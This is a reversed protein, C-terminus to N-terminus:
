APRAGGADEDASSGGLRHTAGHVFWIAIGLMTWAVAKGALEIFEQLMCMTLFSVVAGIAAVAMPSRRHGEWALRRILLFVTGFMGVIFLLGAPGQEQILKLYANDTYTQRRDVESARGVTGIGTGAPNSAITDLSREWTRWRLELSEDALPDSIGRARAETIDSKGGAAIAAVYGGAGVLLVVAVALAKTRRPVTPGAVLVVALVATGVALGLIAVRAYSQVIGILALLATAWALVRVRADLFGIVLSFVAVPVLYSALAVATSFTGADRVVNEEFRAHISRDVLYELEWGTPQVFARFTAYASLLAFAVLLARTLGVASPHVAYMVVGAVVLPVYGQTLRLGEIANVLDPSFLVAQVLSVALWAGVLSWSVREARSADRWVALLPARGAVALLWAVAALLIADIFIAGFGTASPVDEANLRAKFIGEAGVLLLAGVVGLAPARLAISTLLAVAAVGLAMVPWVMVSAAGAAALLALGAVAGPSQLSIAMRPDSAEM